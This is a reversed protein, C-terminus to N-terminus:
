FITHLSPQVTWDSGVAYVANSNWAFSGDSQGLWEILTGASNRLVIDARGDGNYDGVQAVKYAPDLAYNASVPAFVGSASGLWETIVGSSNRLILDARGDGSIDGAGEVVWSSPLSTSATSQYAFSGNAQGLWEVLSGDSTRLIIDSRGDGNFDGSAAPLWNTPLAYNAVASNSVFSGDAKGLWDVITGNDNRM